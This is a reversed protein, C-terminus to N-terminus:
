NILRKLRAKKIPRAPQKAMCQCMSYRSLRAHTCQVSNVSSTPSLTLSSRVGGHQGRGRMMANGMIIYVERSVPHTHIHLAHAQPTYTATPHRHSHPANTEGKGTM